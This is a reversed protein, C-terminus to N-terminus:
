LTRLWDLLHAWDQRALRTTKLFDADTRIRQLVVRAQEITGRAEGIRGLRRHCSAIQVYAELSEPDHQYRNTAGSYAQIAEDYREQDFLADARGFYCNRAISSEAAQRPHDPQDTIQSLLNGYGEIAAELHDQMQRRLLAKSTEITVAALRKRPLKASQRHAEAIRYRSELAQPAEPYREVAESLTRISAEFAAYSQELLQLGLKRSEADARDVGALRSQCELEVAQRFHVAGLAFLSDRWETSEPALSFSYLNDTLLSKAEDLKSDEALALSALLRAQYTAPHRPFQDRCHALAELAEATKGQALLSEGLGVLAEPEAERPQQGLFERYVVAAQEFGQGRRLDDAARSLDDLYHQTAIRLDALKRSLVGAQRRHRRAEARTVGQGPAAEKAAQQELREAWARHIQAQLEVAITESFPSVLGEALELADSFHGSAVLSDIAASLRARFDSASLWVNDYPADSSTVQALARKYLNAAEHASTDQLLEAQHITAALAEAQGFYTRRVLDLQQVAAETDGIQKLMLGMLLQAQAAIKPAAISPSNGERVLLQQLQERLSAITTVAEPQDVKAGLSEHLIRGRLILAEPYLPSSNQIGEIATEAAAFDRQALLIRGELLRGAEVDRPALGESALYQRNHELAEALRPPEVHLYSDALLAHVAMARESGPELAERLIAISRDYRGADHLARGLLWAGEAERTPPMGRSRAEELYRAAVLDLLQRKKPNLQDDADRLTVAGLIYYAGGHDTYAVSRDELLQAALRRAKASNGRELEGFADALQRIYTPRPAPRLILATVAIIGIIAGAATLAGITRLRSARIWAVGAALREKLGGWRPKAAAPEGTPPKQKAM